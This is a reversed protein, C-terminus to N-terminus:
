VTVDFNTEGESEASDSSYTRSSSEKSSQILAIKENEIENLFKYTLFQTLQLVEELSQFMGLLVAEHAVKLFEIYIYDKKIITNAVSNSVPAAANSQSNTLCGSFKVFLNKLLGVNPNESNTARM